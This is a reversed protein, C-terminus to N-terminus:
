NETRLFVESTRITTVVVRSQVDEGADEASLAVHANLIRLVQGPAIDIPIHPAHLLAPTGSRLIASTRVICEWSNPGHRRKIALDVDAFQGSSAAQEDSQTPLWNWYDACLHRVSCMSCNETSARALPPDLRVADAAQQARAQLDRELEELENIPPATVQLDGTDYSIVLKTALRGSPNLESDRFWLLAYVRLQLKHAEKAAGTKFDRIECDSDSLSLLDAIGHWGIGGAILRVETFSGNQLAYRGGTAEKNEVNVQTLRPIFGVRALLRQVRVRLSPIRATIDRRIDNVTAAVRPNDRLGDFLENLCGTLVSSIGGLSRLVSVASEERLSRCNKLTLARTIKELGLHVVSGEIAASHVARPYGRKNWLEPYQAYSLSWRRPCAEIDALTSFSM